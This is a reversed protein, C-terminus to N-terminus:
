KNLEDWVVVRNRGTAKAEYLAGDARTICESHSRDEPLATAVGFSASVRFKEDHGAEFELVTISRRMREACERAGEAGTVPLLIAFEEGGVRGVMDVHTRVGAAATSALRKIVEDGLSHGHVDNVSKFNDIDMMVVSLSNGYRNARTFEAELREFFSRRNSLETLPDTNALERLQNELSKSKEIQANLATERQKLENIDVAFGAVAGAPTAFKTVRLWGFGPYHRDVGTGDANRQAQCREAVYANLEDAPLSSASFGRVLDAYHIRRGPNRSRLTDFVDGYLKEYSENCVVLYDDQDYVAFPIPASEISEVLLKHEEVVRRAVGPYSDDASGTVFYLGGGVLAAAAVLVALSGSYSSVAALGALTLAIAFM